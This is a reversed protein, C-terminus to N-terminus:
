GTKAAKCIANALIHKHVLSAEHDVMIISRSRGNYTNIPGIIPKNLLHHPDKAEM